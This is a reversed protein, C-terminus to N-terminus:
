DGEPVGSMTLLPRHRELSKDSRFGIAFPALRNMVGSRLSPTVGSGGISTM